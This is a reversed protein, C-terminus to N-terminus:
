LIMSHTKRECFLLLIFAVYFLGASTVEGKGWSDWTKFFLFPLPSNEKVLSQQLIQSHKLFDSEQSSLSFMINVARSLVYNRNREAVRFYACRGSWLQLDSVSIAYKLTVPISFTRTGHVNAKARVQQNDSNSSVSFWGPKDWLKFSLSKKRLKVKLKVLHTWYKKM